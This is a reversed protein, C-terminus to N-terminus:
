RVAVTYVRYSLFAREMVPDINGTTERYRASSVTNDPMDAPVRFTATVDYPNLM